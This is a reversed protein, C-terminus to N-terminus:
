LSRGRALIKEVYDNRQVKREFQRWDFPYGYKMYAFYERSTSCLYLHALGVKLEKGLNSAFNQGRSAEFEILYGCEKILEKDTDRLGINM